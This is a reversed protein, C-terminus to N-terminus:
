VADGARLWRYGYPDLELMAHREDLADDYRRNGFVERLPGNEDLVRRLGVRRGESALNHLAIVVRDRDTYRLALVSPDRTGIAVWRGEGFEPFQSRTRIARQTWSLLSTPDSQQSAVNV